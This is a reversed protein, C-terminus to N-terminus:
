EEDWVLGNKVRFFVGAQPPHGHRKSHVFDLGLREPDNIYIWVLRSNPTGALPPVAHLRDSTNSMRHPVLRVYTTEAKASRVAAV